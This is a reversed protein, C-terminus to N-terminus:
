HITKHDSKLLDTFFSEFEPMLKDPHWKSAAALSREREQEYFNADDWLKMIAEIWPQVEAATPVIRSEPTYQDPIEFLQGAQDLVEPIGGRNSGLVPIGNILSEAAVRPFSEWWLSPMLVIKSVRYFDKPDPTNALQHMNHVGTLDHGTRELWQATARGEVVLMPIDSRFRALETAIRAFVFVGKHPQPNVFTVFRRDFDTCRVDAWNWPGPIPTSELDLVKQYHAQAFRSPVLVADVKTFLDKAKEYAFNHLAFAVRISRRRAADMIAQVVWNGGYTLLVDPKFRDLVKDCLGLFVQGDISTPSGKASRGPLDFISVPVGGRAYHFLSFALGNETWPKEVYSVGLDSVVQPITGNFDLAPGCFTKCEWGRNALLEWLDRTCLAAGNSPDLYSHWSCFLLRPKKGRSPQETSTLM